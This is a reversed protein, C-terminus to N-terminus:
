TRKSTFFIMVPTIWRMSWFCMSSMAVAIGGPAILAVKGLTAIASYNGAIEPDFYHKVLIVDVYTLITFAAIALVALATYSHFGRINVKESGVRTLDRLFFITVAFVVLEAIVFGSLGGYVGLGLYVLLAGLTFKLFAVLTNSSGLPVFRQLGRLIGYNVPLAFVLILSFFLIILYWNNDINLFNSILPSLASLLLFSGLGILLTRKLYSRWLYSIKGLRGQAKFMSAFKTISTNVASSFISLIVLLSLLSSLTGFQAPTLMRAMTLQFGYNILGATLGFAVMITGHRTMDDTMIKDKIAILRSSM